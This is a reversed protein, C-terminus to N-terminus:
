RIPSHTSGPHIHLRAGGGAHDVVELGLVFLNKGHVLERPVRAGVGGPLPLLAVPERASRVHGVRDGAQRDLDPELAAGLLLLQLLHLCLPALDPEVERELIIIM